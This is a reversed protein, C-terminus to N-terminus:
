TDKRMVIVKVYRMNTKLIYSTHLKAYILGLSGTLM